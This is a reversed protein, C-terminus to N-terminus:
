QDDINVEIIVEGKPPDQEIFLYLLFVSILIMISGARRNPPTKAVIIIESYLKRKIFGSRAVSQSIKIVVRPITYLEM